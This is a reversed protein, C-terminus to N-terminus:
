DPECQPSNAAWVAVGGGPMAIVREGNPRVVEWAEYDPDPSVTLPGLTSSHVHVFGGQTCEIAVTAGWLRALAEREPAAPDVPVAFGGIDITSSLVLDGWHETGVALVLTVSYDFRVQTVSLGEAQLIM